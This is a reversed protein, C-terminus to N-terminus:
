RQIITQRAKAVIDANRNIYSVEIVSLVMKGGKTDRETISLVKPTSALVDGAYVPHFFDYEIGGDLIRAYGANTITALVEERLASIFPMGGRWRIPWGFFGPPAILGGYRSHRAYEEDWYLLNRDGVADAMKKIGSREVELMATEGTKGILKTLEEPLM